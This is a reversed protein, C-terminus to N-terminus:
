IIHSFVTNGWCSITRTWRRHWGSQATWAVALHRVEMSHFQQRQVQSYPKSRQADFENKNWRILYPRPGYGTLFIIFRFHSEAKLSRYKLCSLYYNENWSTSSRAHGPSFFWVSPPSLLIVHIVILFFMDTYRYRECQQYHPLYDCM